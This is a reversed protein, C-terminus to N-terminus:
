AATYPVDPNRSGGTHGVRLIRATSLLPSWLRNQAVTRSSTIGEPTRKQQCDSVSQRNNPDRLQPSLPHGVNGFFEGAAPLQMICRDSGEQNGRREERSADRRRGGRRWRLRDCIRGRRRRGRRNRNDATLRRRPLACPDSRRIISWAVQGGGDLPAWSLNSLADALFARAIGV